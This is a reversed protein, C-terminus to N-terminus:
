LRVDLARMPERPRVARLQELVALSEDLLELATRDGFPGHSGALLADPGDHAVVETCIQALTEVLSETRQADVNVMLM